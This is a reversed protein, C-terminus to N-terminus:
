YSPVFAAAPLFPRRRSVLATSVISVRGLRNIVARILFKHEEVHMKSMELYVRLVAFYVQFHGLLM